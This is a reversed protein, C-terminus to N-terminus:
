ENLSLKVIDIFAKPDIIKENDETVYASAFLMDLLEASTLDPNIQWGMALVGALYPMTWSVGGQGDYQYSFNGKEYEEATTRRAAPIHIQSERFRYEKGDPWGPMCKDVNDPDHLDCYCPATIRHEQTADLVLMGAELARQYAADWAANNKIFFSGEGSPAASVSVVRIKDSEPLKENEDILWNLADAYYQADGNWSPAAAYYMSADPATGINEGVLLSTVGPGHMSGEHPATNTGVDYYKIINGRFEPHDLLMNQDIIGVTVGKGTIGEKHLDRIGLGPDMGLKMINDAVEKDQASWTTSENFWLTQILPEGLSGYLRVDKFRVDQYPEIPIFYALAALIAAVPLRALALKRWNHDGRLNSVAQRGRRSFIVLVSKIAWGLPIIVMLLWSAWHKEARIFEVLAVGYFALFLISIAVFWWPRRKGAYASAEINQWRGGLFAIAISTLLVGSALFYGFLKIYM